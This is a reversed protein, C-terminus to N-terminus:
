HFLLFFFFFNIGLFLFLTVDGSVVSADTGKVQLPKALNSMYRRFQDEM